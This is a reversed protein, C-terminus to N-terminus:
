RLVRDHILQALEILDGPRWAKTLAEFIERPDLRRLDAVLELKEEATLELEDVANPDPPLLWYTKTTM